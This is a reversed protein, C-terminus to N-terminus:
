SRMSRDAGTRAPGTHKTEFAYLQQFVVTMPGLFAQPL